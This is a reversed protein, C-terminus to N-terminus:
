KDIVISFSLDNIEKHSRIYQNLEDLTLDKIKQILTKDYDLPLNRYFNIYKKGLRSNITEDSLVRSGLIYSKADDLEQKTVNGKLFDAITEKIANIAENKNELKTQLYGFTNSSVNDISNYFYASYALGRKVRIEEMMRSGFGSSGMIFSMIQAKHLEDEYSEFNFPSGFYIYAQKTPKIDIIEKSDANPYYKTGTYKTGNELIKLIKNLQKKTKEIDLDGGLLIVANNLLLKDKLFREVDGLNIQEIDKITGIKTAALPTGKFLISKLNKQAIYDFDNEKSLLYGILTLKTQELAENTLNPNALLEGLLEIAKDQQEKLFEISLSISEYGNNVNLGIARKELEKAFGYEGRKKSGRDLMTASFSSLGAKEEGLTGAGNFIIKIFGIPLINSIEQIIPIKNNNVELYIVENMNNGKTLGIILIFIFLVRM